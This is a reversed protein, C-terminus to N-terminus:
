TAVKTRKIVSHSRQANHTKTRVSDKAYPNLGPM